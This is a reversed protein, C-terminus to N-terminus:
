MLKDPNLVAYVAFISARWRHRDVADGHRPRRRSHVARSRWQGDRNRAHPPRGLIERAPGRRPPRHPARRQDAAAGRRDQRRQRCDVDCRARLARAAGAEDRAETAALFKQLLATKADREGHVADRDGRVRERARHVVQRCAAESRDIASRSKPTASTSCTTCCSLPASKPRSANSCRSFRSRCTRPSISIGTPRSRRWSRSRCGRVRTRRVSPRSRRRLRDIALRTATTVLWAEANDIHPRDAEHWRLYAEQVIDEADARSGLMRYALGFLRGRLPEFTAAAASTENM